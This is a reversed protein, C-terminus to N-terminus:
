RSEPYTTSIKWYQGEAFDGYIRVIEDIQERGIENRKNGQSKRMRQYFSVANVLQVKGRRRASKRNTLVWVYTNIGTNYFFQDPVLRV